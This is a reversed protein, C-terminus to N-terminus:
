GPHVDTFCFRPALQEQRLLKLEAATWQQLDLRRKKGPIAVVVFTVNKTGFRQEYLGHTWAVLGRVKKHWRGRTETGLDVEVVICSRGAPTRLDLWADPCVAIKESPGDGVQVEVRDYDRGFSREHIMQAIEFETHERCFLELAILFDNVCLTHDLALFSYRTHASHHSRPPLDVGLEDLYRRGKTDLRYVFPRNGKLRPVSLEQRALLGGHCFEALRQSVFNQSNRYYLRAIQEATLVYLRALSRLILEDRPTTPASRPSPHYAPMTAMM